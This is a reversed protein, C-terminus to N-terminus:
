VAAALNCAQMHTLAARYTTATSALRLQEDSGNMANEAMLCYALCFVAYAKIFDKIRACADDGSARRYLNLFETTQQDNMQWEVIAGALDWAIDTPGPFFHDDGHSGSDTKLFKGETTLLWEHPQMRGDAIVPRELRLEVALDLGLERLNHEAMQQLANLDSLETAFTRLRFACYEALRALIPASLDSSSAPRGSTKSYVVWQYSVFGDSEECPRPGFGAAAVTRERQLVVDGYHGLGAFKFFRREDSEGSSLYKLREFSTWVAPWESESAFVRSRWQGGGIFEVAEAPRRAEGAIPICRFRRWRYAANEACLMDLNPAHSSILTIKETPAGARELAEAVALFSSGSLGPGEDVVAFSAGCSVARCVADMQETTFEVTRNYPHGQPRVTIREAAIGRARAAAAAVSSLTTGISRIGVVLLHACAPLQRIVDAYVLPHLAYYAFGEPTSISLQEFVPLARAANILFDLDPRQFEPDFFSVQESALLANAIGDTLLECPRAVQPDSEAMGCELEGALLLASLLTRQSHHGCLQELHATIAAKLKKGSARRRDGRFVLLNLGSM